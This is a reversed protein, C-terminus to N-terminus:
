KQNKKRQFFFGMGGVLVLSLSMLLFRQWPLPTNIPATSGIVNPAAWYFPPGYTTGEKNMSIKAKQLALAKNDGEILYEYFRKMLESNSANQVSWLTAVISRAGAYSFGQALSAIGEGPLLEGAQTECASLVVMEANLHLNYLDALYLRENDLNDDVPQFALYSYKSNYKNFIGHTGLHIFRYSPAEKIFRGLLGKRKQNPYIDGGLLAQISRIEDKSAALPNLALSSDPATRGKFFDLDLLAKEEADLTEPSLETFDPAFALLSKQFWSSAHKRTINKLWLKASFDSSIAMDHLLFPYLSIPTKAKPVQTLLADLPLYYTERDHIIVSYKWKNQQWMEPILEQYLNYGLCDFLDKQAQPTKTTWSETQPLLQAFEKIEERLPNIEKVQITEKSIAFVFWAKEGAFYEIMLTSDPLHRQIEAVNVLDTDYKLKYYAPYKKGFDEIIDTLDQKKAILEDLLLQYTESTSELGERKQELIAIERKLNQEQKLADAPIDVFSKAEKEVMSAYLLTAKAKEALQFALPENNQYVAVKIAGEYTKYGENMLFLKSKDEQYTTRLEDILKIALFYNEGSAALDKTNGDALYKQLFTNAKEGLSEILFTLSGAVDLTQIDPVAYLDQKSFGQVRLSLSQQLAELSQDFKGADRYVEGLDVYNNALFVLRKGKDSQPTNLEIASKFNSIAESFAGTERYIIGLNTYCDAITSQDNKAEQIALHYYRSAEEYAKDLLYMNGLNQYIRKLLYSSASDKSLQEVKKLHAIGTNIEKLREFIVGRQNGSLIQRKYNKIEGYQNWAIQNLSLAGYPDGKDIYLQAAEHYLYAKGFLDQTGAKTTLKEIEQFGLRYFEEAESYKLLQRSAKCLNAYCRVIDTHGPALTDKRIKLAILFLQIAEEQMKMNLAKVAKGYFFKAQKPTRLDAICSLQAINKFAESFAALTKVELTKQQQAELAKAYENAYSNALNFHSNAETICDSAYMGMISQFFIWLLFPMRQNM